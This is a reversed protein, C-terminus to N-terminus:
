SVRCCGVGDGKETCFYQRRNLLEGKQENRKCLMLWLFLLGMQLSKKELREEGPM